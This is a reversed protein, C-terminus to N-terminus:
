KNDCYIQKKKKKKKLFISLQEFSVRLASTNNPFGHVILVM